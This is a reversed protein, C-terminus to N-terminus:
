WNGLTQIDVWHRPDQPSTPRLPAKSLVCFTRSPRSLPQCALCPSYRRGLDPPPAPCLELLAPSYGCLPGGTTVRCPGADPRAPWRPLPCRKGPGTPSGARPLRHGGSPKAAGPLGTTSGDQAETTGDTPHLHCCRRSVPVSCVPTCASPATAPEAARASCPRDGPTGALGRPM